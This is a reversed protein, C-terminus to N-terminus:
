EQFIFLLSTLSQKKSWYDSSVSLIREMKGPYPWGSHFFRALCVYKTVLRSFVNEAMRSFSYHFIHLILNKPPPKSPWGQFNEKQRVMQSKGRTFSQEISSYICGSAVLLGKLMWSALNVQWCHLCRPWSKGKAPKCSEGHNAWLQFILLIYSLFCFSIQSEFELIIVSMCDLYNKGSQFEEYVRTFINGGRQDYLGHKRAIFDRCYVNSNKEM